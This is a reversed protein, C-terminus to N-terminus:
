KHREELFDKSQLLTSALGNILASLKVSLYKKKIKVQFNDIEIDASVNSDNWAIVFQDEFVKIQAKDFLQAGFERFSGQLTDANLNSSGGLMVQGDISTIKRHNEQHYEQEKGNPFHATIGLTKRARIKIGADKIEKMFITNPLGNLGFNGNHDALIHIKLHPMQIKRKILADAIYRDYIFLQEMYIHSKANKIM